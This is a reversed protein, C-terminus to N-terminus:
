APNSDENNIDKLAQYFLADEESDPPFARFMEMIDAVALHAKEYLGIQTGNAELLAEGNERFVVTYRGKPGFTYESHIKSTM